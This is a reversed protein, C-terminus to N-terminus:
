PKVKQSKLWMLWLKLAKEKDGKCKKLIEKMQEIRFKRIESCSNM